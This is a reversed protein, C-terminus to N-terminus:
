NIQDESDEIVRSIVERIVEFDYGKALLFNYLQSKRKRNDKNRYPHSRLKKEALHIIEELNEEDEPFLSSIEDLITKDIGKLRLDHLIKRKSDKGRNLRDNYFLIAYERDNLLGSEILSQLVESVLGKDFKKQILKLKLEERSHPRRSLLNLAREKIRIKQNLLSLEAFLEGDIEDGKRLAKEYVVIKAIKLKEGSSLIIEANDAGRSIIREITM